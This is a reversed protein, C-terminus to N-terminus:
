EDAADSTYLLCPGLLSAVGWILNGITTGLGCVAGLKRSASGIRIIQMTDPGPLM